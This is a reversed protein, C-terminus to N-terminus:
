YHILFALVRGAPFSLVYSFILNRAFTLCTLIISTIQIPQCNEIGASLISRPISPVSTSLLVLYVIWLPHTGFFTNCGLIKDAIMLFTSSAIGFLWGHWEHLSRSDSALSFYHLLCLFHLCALPFLVMLHCIEQGRSVTLSLSCFLLSRQLVWLFIQHFGLPLSWMLFCNRLFRYWWKYLQLQPTSSGRDLTNRVIMICLYPFM